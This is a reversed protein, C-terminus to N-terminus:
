RTTPPEIGGIRIAPFGVGVWIETRIATLVNAKCTLFKPEIGLCLINIMYCKTNYSKMSFSGCVASLIKKKNIIISHINWSQRKM